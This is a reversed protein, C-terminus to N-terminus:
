RLESRLGEVARRYQWALRRGWRWGKDTRNAAGWHSLDLTYDAAVFDSLKAPSDTEIDFLLFRAKREEFFGVAWEQYRLFHDRWQDLVGQRDLGFLFAFRGLYTGHDHASRSRLWNEVNRTNFVFYSDPHEDFLRQVVAPADVYLSRSGYTIDSLAEYEELGSLIPRSASINSVMTLALFRKRASGPSRYAWHASRLGSGLFLKHM